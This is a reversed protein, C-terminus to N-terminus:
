KMSKIDMTDTPDDTWKQWTHKDTVAKTELFWAMWWQEKWQKM